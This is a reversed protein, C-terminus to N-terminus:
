LGDTPPELGGRGVWFRCRTPTRPPTGRPGLRRAVPGGGAGGWPEIPAICPCSPAAAPPRRVPRGAARIWRRPWSAGARNCCTRTRTPCTPAATGSWRRPPKWTPAVAVSVSVATHPLDHLRTPPFAWRARAPARHAAARQRQAAPRRLPRHVAPRRPGQGAFARFRVKLTARDLASDIAHDLPLRDLQCPRRLILRARSVAPPHREFCRGLTRVRRDTWAVCSRRRGWSEGSSGHQTRVGTAGDSFVVVAGKSPAAATSCVEPSTRAVRFSLCSTSAM